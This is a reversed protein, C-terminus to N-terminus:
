RGKWVDYLEHLTPDNATQQPETKQEYVTLTARAADRLDRAPIFDAAEAITKLSHRLRTNEVNNANLCKALREIENAAKTLGDSLDSAPGAETALYVCTAQKRLRTVIDTMQTITGRSPPEAM